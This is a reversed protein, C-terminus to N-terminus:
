SWPSRSLVPRRWGARPPYANSRQLCPRVTSRLALCSDQFARRQSSRPTCPVFRLAMPMSQLTPSDRFARWRRRVVVHVFTPRQSPTPTASAFPLQLGAPYRHHQHSQRSRPGGYARPTRRSSRPPLAPAYRMMLMLFSGCYRM